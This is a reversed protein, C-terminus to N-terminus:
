RQVRINPDLPKDPCGGALITYKYVTDGQLAAAATTSVPPSRLVGNKTERNSSKGVFPNYYVGFAAGNPKGQEDRATWVIRTGSKRVLLPSNPDVSKPCGESDFIVSVDVKNGDGSNDNSGPGEQGTCAGLMLLVGVLIVFRSVISTIKNM